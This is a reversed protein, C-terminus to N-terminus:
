LSYFYIAGNSDLLITNNLNGSCIAIFHVDNRIPNVREEGGAKEIVVSGDAKIGVCGFSSQCVAVINNWSSIHPYLQTSNTFVQGNHNICICNESASSIYVADKFLETKELTYNRTNCIYINGTNTFIFGSGSVYVIREGTSLIDLNINIFDRHDTFPDNDYTSGQYLLQGTKTLMYSYQTIEYKVHINHQLLAQMREEIEYPYDTAIHLKGSTDLYGQSLNMAVHDLYDDTKSYHTVHGSNLTDKSMDKCAAVKNHEYSHMFYDGNIHKYAETQLTCSSRYNPIKRLYKIAEVYNKREICNLAYNYVSENSSFSLESSNGAPTTFNTNIGYNINNPNKTDIVCPATDSRPTERLFDSLDYCYVYGTETLGIVRSGSTCLAIFRQDAPFVSLNKYSGNVAILINGGSTLGCCYDLGDYFHSYGSAVSIIDSWSRTVPFAEVISNHLTGNDTVALLLTGKNLAIINNYDNAKTIAPKGTSPKNNLFYVNGLSTLMIDATIHVPFEGSALTSIDYPTFITKKNANDYNCLVLQSSKTLLAYSINYESYNLCSMGSLPTNQSYNAIAKYIPSYTDESGKGCFTHFIGSVDIYGNDSNLINNAPLRSEKTYSLIYESNLTTSNMLSCNYISGYFDSYTLYTQNITAYIDMQLQNSDKYGPITRLYKIASYYKKASIMSKAYNYTDEQNAFTLEAPTQAEAVSITEQVSESETESEIESSLEDTSEMTADSNNSTTACGMHHLSLVAMILFLIILIAMIAVRKKNM